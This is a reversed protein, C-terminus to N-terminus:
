KKNKNFLQNAPCYIERQKCFRCALNGRVFGNGTTTLLVLVVLLALILWDFKMVLLAIGVVLPILTALFDPVIDKWTIKGDIFKNCTGKKFFLASIKGKGWACYKGYYYCGTCSKKLLRLELWFIYLLYILLWGLGLQYIIFAGILYIGVSVLNSIVITSWPYNEFTESQGM